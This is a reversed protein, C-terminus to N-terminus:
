PILYNPLNKLIHPMSNQFHKITKRIHEEDESAFMGSIDEVDDLKEYAVENFLPVPNEWCLYRRTEDQVEWDMAIALAAEQLHERTLKKPKHERANIGNELLIRTTLTHAKVSYAVTGASHAVLDPIKERRVYDNFLYEASPSRFLNGACIFLLKKM